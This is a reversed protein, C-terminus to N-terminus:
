VGPVSICGAPPANRRTKGLYDAAKQRARAEVEALDTGQDKVIWAGPEENRISVHYTSGLRYSIVRVPWGSLVDKTEKYAEAKM